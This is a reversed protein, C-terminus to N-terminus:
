LASDKAADEIAGVVGCVRLNRVICVFTLDMQVSRFPVSRQVQEEQEKVMTALQTFISGLEVITQEITQTADARMQIYSDQLHLSVAICSNNCFSFVSTQAALM